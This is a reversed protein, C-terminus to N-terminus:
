KGPNARVYKWVKAGHKKGEDRSSAIADKAMEKWRMEIKDYTSFDPQLETFVHLASELSRRATMALRSSIVIRGERVQVASHLVVSNCAVCDLSEEFVNRDYYSYLRPDDSEARRLIWAFALPRLM